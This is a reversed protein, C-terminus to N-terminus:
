PGRQQGHRVRECEQGGHSALGSSPHQPPCDERIGLPFTQLLHELSLLVDAFRVPLLQGGFQAQLVGLHTCSRGTFVNDRNTETQKSETQRDTEIETETQKDTQRQRKRDTDTQRDTETETDRDRDRQRETETETQIETERDRDRERGRESERQNHTQIDREKM